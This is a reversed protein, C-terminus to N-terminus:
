DGYFEKFSAMGKKMSKVDHAEAEAAVEEKTIKDALKKYKGYKLDKYVRKKNSEGPAYRQADMKKNLQHKAYGPVYKRLVQQMGEEVAAVEEKKVDTKQQNPHVNETVSQQGSMIQFAVDAVDRIIKNNSYM